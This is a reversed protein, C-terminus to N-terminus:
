REKKPSASQVANEGDESPCVQGGDVEGVQGAQDQGAGNGDGPAAEPAPEGEGRSEGRDVPSNPGSSQVNQMDGLFSRSRTKAFTTFNLVSM